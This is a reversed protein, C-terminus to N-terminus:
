AASDRTAAKEEAIKKTKSDQGQATLADHRARPSNAPPPLSPRVPHVQDPAVPPAAEKASPVRRAAGRNSCRECNM